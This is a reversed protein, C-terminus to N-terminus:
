WSEEYSTDLQQVSLLERECLSVFRQIEKSQICNDSYELGMLYRLWPEQGMAYIYIKSSPIERITNWASEANAASLRRSEDNRRSIATTLLPGYLWSLPAGYCEMGLFLGDVRGIVNELRRYIYKDCGDSDALFVFKRGDMEIYVTQKSFIDLESHEGQFPLSVIEGGEFTLRDLPHVVHINRYGLRALMIKLSPDAINGSNNSPVVIAGVRHRLHLLAEPCFHDQHAHTIIVYDLEQPLDAFTFRGDTGAEWSFTPDILISTNASEVLVCAHGFYSIRVGHRVPGRRRNKPPTTTFFSDFLDRSNKDIELIEAIEDLAAPNTRMSFLADLRKDDFCMNLSLADNRRLRPTTMFFPRNSTDVCAISIEQIKRHTNYPVLEELIRVKAHHNVDYTLEVLGQLSAPIKQYLQKLSYGNATTQITKDFSRLDRALTILDQCDREIDSILQQVDVKKEAPLNVFPGGLLKPDRAAVVHLSPNTVFSNLLPLQRFTINMATQVPSLLHPWANWRCVLPELIVGDKLFVNLSRQSKLM